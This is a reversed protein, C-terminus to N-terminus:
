VQNGLQCSQNKLKENEERLKHPEEELLNKEELSVKAESAVRELTKQCTAVGKLLFSQMMQLLEDGKLNELSQVFDAFALFCPPV